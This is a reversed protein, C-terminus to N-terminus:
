EAPCVLQWSICQGSDRDRALCILECGAHDYGFGKEICIGAFFVMIVVVVIAIKIKLM